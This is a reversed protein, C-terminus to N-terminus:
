RGAEVTARDEPLLWGRQAMDRAADAFRAAHGPQVPVPEARGVIVSCSCKPEYRAAPADVWPTRVGGLANGADDRAFDLPIKYDEM